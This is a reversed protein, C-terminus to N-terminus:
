AEVEEKSRPRGPKKRTAYGASVLQDVADLNRHADALDRELEAVRDLAQDKEAVAAKLEHGQVWGFMRAMEGVAVRSVYVHNDLGGILESGTDIFGGPHNGGIHPLVACRAPRTVAREVIRM